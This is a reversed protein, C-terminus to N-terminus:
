RVRITYNASKAAPVNREWPRRYEFRLEQQGSDKAQFYWSEIGDSGPKGEAGVVQTYESALRTLANSGSTLFAWGYGTSRNSVLRVTVKEGARVEIVKGSDAEALTVARYLSHPTSSKIERQERDLLRVESEGARLFHRQSDAKGSDLQYVTAEPANGSGRKVTLRGTTELTRDGQRTGIYTERLAYRTPEGSPQEAYLALDTRIGACDACPLIGTFTALLVPSASTSPADGGSGACGALAGFALLTAAVRM